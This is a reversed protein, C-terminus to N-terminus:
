EVAYWCRQILWKRAKKSKLCGRLEVKDMKINLRDCVSFGKHFLLKVKQIEDLILSMSFTNALCGLYKGSLSFQTRLKPYLRALSKEFFQFIVNSGDPVENM